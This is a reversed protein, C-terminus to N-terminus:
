ANKYPLAELSVEAALAEFEPDKHVITAENLVASAAILADALSLRHQAKLRGAALLTPEDMVDVFAVPFQKVLAYRLEAEDQDREQLTIYYVELLSVWHLLAQGSRLLQEVRSTGAEDEILALLASTDLM